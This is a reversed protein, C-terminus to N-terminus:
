WDGALMAGAQFNRGYNSVAMKREVEQRYSPDTDYLRRGDPGAKRIAANKEAESAFGTIQQNSPQSVRAQQTLDAPGGDKGGTANYKALYDQMAREAIKPTAKLAANLDAQEDATLGGNTAWADFAKWGEQGGALKLVASNTAEINANQAIQETTLAAPTTAKMARLEDAAQLGAIWAKVMAPDQGFAEAAAKISEDTLKGTKQYEETFPKFKEVQEPPLEKVFNEMAQLTDDVKQDLAAKAPDPKDGDEVKAPDAPPTQDQQQQQGTLRNQNAQDLLAQQEQPSLKTIDVDLSPETQLGGDPKVTVDGGSGVTSLNGSSKSVVGDAGVSMAGGTRVIGGGVDSM